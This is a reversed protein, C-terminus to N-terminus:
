EENNDIELDLELDLMSVEQLTNIFTYRSFIMYLKRFWVYQSKHETMASKIAKRQEYTVLYWYPACLLSIPLDLIQTYKRIVNVTELAYLKCYSPVKKEMCLAAIAFYLSIHNKHRSVGYKDFTVVASMKYMEIYHLIKDAVKETPWQVKQDDPLETNMLITVNQEPIGLKKACSWLEEKRKRNGGMSFCLLYIESTKSLTIWYILPGFFMVEDDPHATVLLIRAPPGPLQWAKHNVKKLIGYLFICVCLYAVFAIMLQWFIEELYYFWGHFIEKIQIQLYQRIAELDPMKSSWM